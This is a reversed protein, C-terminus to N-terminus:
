WGREGEVERALARLEARQVKGREGRQWDAVSSLSKATINLRLVTAKSVIRAAQAPQLRAWETVPPRNDNSPRRNRHPRSDPAFPGRHTNDAANSDIRQPNNM